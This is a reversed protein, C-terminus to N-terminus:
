WVVFGLGQFSQIRFCFASRISLIKQLKEERTNSSLSDEINCDPCVVPDTRFIVNYIIYYIYLILVCLINYYM